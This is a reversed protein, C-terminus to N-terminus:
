RKAPVTRATARSDPVVSPTVLNEDGKPITRMEKQQKIIRRVHSKTRRANAAIAKFPSQSPTCGVVSICTGHM